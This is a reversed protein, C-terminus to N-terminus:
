EKDIQMGDLLTMAIEHLPLGKILAAVKCAALEVLGDIGLDNAALMTEYLLERNTAIRDIFQADWPDLCNDLMSDSRVPKELPKPAVGDHHHLWLVIEHLVSPSCTCTFEKLEPELHSRAM